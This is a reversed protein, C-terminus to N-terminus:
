LNPEILNAIRLVERSYFNCIYSVCNPSGSIYAKAARLEANPTKARAGADALYLASATFADEVRWPDPPNHGTLDAVKDEFLLWTSPLFQAPGMAGGCGYNPKRSVPRTEPDYGLKSTIQIFANKQKEASSPKGLNIYCQYLDVRWNGSGTHNGATIVGEEYRRGTEVELLGLLFATRIGTKQAALSAYKVADEASVGTKGLYQIQNRIAAIDRQKTQILKQYNAELGQTEKLIKNKQSKQSDVNQKQIQALARLSLLEERKEELEEKEKQLQARLVALDDLSQNLDQQVNELASVEQFFQSLDKKVLLIEIPSLEDQKYITRLYESLSDKQKSIKVEAEKISEGRLSINGETQRVSLNLGKITLEARKIEGDLRAVENKLTEKRGRIQVLDKDLAAIESEISSIQAELQARQAADQAWVLGQDFVALTFILSLVLLFVALNFLVSMRKSM